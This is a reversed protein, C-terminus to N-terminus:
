DYEDSIAVTPTGSASIVQVLGVWTVTISEGAKLPMGVSSSVTAPGVYVTIAADMNKITLSRRTARAIALTAATTSTAVQSVAINAAGQMAKVYTAARNSSDIGLTNAPTSADAVAHKYMQVGGGTDKTVITVSANAGDKVSINDAM